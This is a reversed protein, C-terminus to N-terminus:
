YSLVEVIDFGRITVRCNFLLRYKIFKFDEMQSSTNSEEPMLADVYL